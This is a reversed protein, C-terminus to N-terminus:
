PSKREAGLGEALARARVPQEIQMTEETAEGHDEGGHVHDRDDEVREDAEAHQIDDHREGGGPM